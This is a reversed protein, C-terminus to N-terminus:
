PRRGLPFRLLHQHEPELDVLELLRDRPERWRPLGGCTRSSLPSHLSRALDPRDASREASVRLFLPLHAAGCILDRVIAPPARSESLLSATLLRSKNRVNRVRCHSLSSRHSSGANRWEDRATRYTRLDTRCPASGYIRVRARGICGNSGADRAPRPRPRRRLLMSIPKEANVEPRRIQTRCRVQYM